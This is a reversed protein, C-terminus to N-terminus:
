QLDKELLQMVEVMTEAKSIWRQIELEKLRVLSPHVEMKEEKIRDINKSILESMTILKARIVQNESM